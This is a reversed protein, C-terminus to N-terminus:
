PLLTLLGPCRFPLFHDGHSQTVDRTRATEATADPCTHSSPMRSTVKHAQSESLEAASVSSKNGTEGLARVSDRRKTRPAVLSIVPVLVFLVPIISTVSPSSAHSSGQAGGAKKATTSRTM